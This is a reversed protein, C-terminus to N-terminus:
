DRSLCHIAGTSRAGHEKVEQYWSVGKGDGLVHDLSSRRTMDFAIMAVDAEKFAVKRLPNVAEPGALDWFEGEYNELPRGDAQFEFEKTHSYRSLPVGAAVPRLETRLQLASM